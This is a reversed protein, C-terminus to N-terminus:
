LVRKDKETQGDFGTLQEANKSPWFGQVSLLQQNLYASSVHLIRNKLEHYKAQFSKKKVM